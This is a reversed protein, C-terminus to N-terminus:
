VGHIVMDLGAINKITKLPDQNKVTEIEESFANFGEQMAEKFHGAVGFM